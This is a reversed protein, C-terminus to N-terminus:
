IVGGFCVVDADTQKLGLREFRAQLAPVNSAAGLMRYGIQKAIVRLEQLVLDLAASRAVRNIRPNGCVFAISALETDSQILFAAALLTGDSEVVRGIPPLFGEPVEPLGKHTWFGMLIGFDSSQYARIQM